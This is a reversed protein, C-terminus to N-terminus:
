YCDIIEVFIFAREDFNRNLNKNLVNKSIVIKKNKDREIAIRLEDSKYLIKKTLTEVNLIIKKNNLMKFDIILVFVRIFFDFNM